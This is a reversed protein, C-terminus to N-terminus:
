LVHQGSVIGAPGVLALRDVRTPQAVAYRTAICAGMSAGVFAARDIALAALVEDM